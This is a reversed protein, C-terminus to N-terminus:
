SEYNERLSLIRKARLRGIGNTEMLDKQRTRLRLINRLSGLRSLMDHAQEETVGTVASLALVQPHVNQIKVAKHISPGANTVEKQTHMTVLYEVFQNMDDFQMFDIGPFRLHFTMKFNLNTQKMRQLEIAYDRRTVPRRKGAVYPKLNNGYVVLAPRDFSEKLDQLQGVITRSRGHGMISHYLDNIEKAEIGVNGIVYDASQLRKVQIEGLPENDRDGLRAFLKHILVDNERDHVYLVM